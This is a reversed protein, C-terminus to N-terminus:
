DRFLGLAFPVSFGVPNKLFVTQLRL